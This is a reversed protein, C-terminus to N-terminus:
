RVFNVIYLMPWGEWKGCVDIGPRVIILVLDESAKSRDSSVQVLTICIPSGLVCFRGSWVHFLKVDPEHRVQLYLNLKEVSSGPNARAAYTAEIVKPM